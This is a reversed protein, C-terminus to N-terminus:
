THCAINPKRFSIEQGTKVKFEFLSDKVNSWNMDFWEEDIFIFNYGNDKAWMKAAEFKSIEKDNNQQRCKPRVEILSRSEKSFFDVIYVRKKDQYEYPIRITEYELDQGTMNRITVYYVAEWMSRFLFTKEDIVIKIKSTKRWNVRPTFENDLIKKKMTESQKKRSNEYVTKYLEKFEISSHVLKNTQSIKAKTEESHWSSGNNRRTKIRKLKEENSQRRSKSKEGILKKLFESKEKGFKKEFSGSNKEGIRKNKLLRTEESMNKHMTRVVVSKNASICDKKSCTSRFESKHFVPTTIELNCYHCIPVNKLGLKFCLMRLKYAPNISDLFSTESIIFERLSLLERKLYWGDDEKCTGAKFGGNIELLIKLADERNWTKMM